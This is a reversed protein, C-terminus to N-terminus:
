CSTPSGLASHKHCCAFFVILFAVGSCFFVPLGTDLPADGLSHLLQWKLYLKRELEIFLYYADLQM